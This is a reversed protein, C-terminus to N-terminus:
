GIFNIMKKAEHGVKEAGFGTLKNRYMKMLEYTVM